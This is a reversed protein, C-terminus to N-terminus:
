AAYPGCPDHREMVASADADLQCFIDFSVSFDNRCVSVILRRAQDGAHPQHNTPTDCSQRDDNRFHVRIQDIFQSFTRNRDHKMIHPRRSLVDGIDADVIPIDYLRDYSVKV